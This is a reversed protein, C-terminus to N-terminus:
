RELIQKIYIGGDCYVMSVYSSKCTFKCLVVLSKGVEKSYLRQLVLSCNCNVFFCNELYVFPLSLLVHYQILRRNIELFIPCKALYDFFPNWRSYVQLSQLVYTGCKDPILNLFICIVSYTSTLWNGM